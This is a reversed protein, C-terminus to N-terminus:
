RTAISSFVDLLPKGAGRKDVLGSSECWLCLDDPGDRWQYWLMGHLKLPRRMRLAMKFAGRLAAKQGGNSKILPHGKRGGKSGWGIETVWLPTNRARRKNLIRRAQKLQKKVGAVSGAYPHYAVDDVVRAVGRDKFLEGLYDDGTIAHRNTPKGVIGATMVEATPDIAHITNASRKLVTGYQRPSPKPGWWTMSNPENWIQWVEIPNYHVYPNASWFTGDPGYRGVVVALFEGWAKQARGKLPTKSREDSIWHPVGYLIPIVDIGRDAANRMIADGYHWRYGGEEVPKFANAPFITRITGVNNNVM